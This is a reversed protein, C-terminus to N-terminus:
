HLRESMWHLGESEVIEPRKRGVLWKKLQIEEFWRKGRV